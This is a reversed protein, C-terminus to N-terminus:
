MRQRHRLVTRPASHEKSAVILTVHVAEALAACVCVSMCVAVCSAGRQAGDTGSSQTQM